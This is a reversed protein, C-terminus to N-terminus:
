PYIIERDETDNAYLLTSADSLTYSEGQHLTPMLDLSGILGSAPLTHPMTKLIAELSRVSLSQPQVLLTCCLAFCHHVM